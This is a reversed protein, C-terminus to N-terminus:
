PFPNRATRYLWPPRYEDVNVEDRAREILADPNDTALGQDIYYRASSLDSVPLDKPLRVAFDGRITGRSTETGTPLKRLSNKSLQTAQEKSINETIKYFPSDFFKSRKEFISLQMNVNVAFPVEKDIDFTITEDLFDYDLSEIYCPQNDYIGGITIKFLPPVMFGNKVGSPFTLGSLYNIKSWVGDLEGKSFAAINFTLNVSRKVGGYTVFRETRGVYQQENFQPKISEKISSLLARFYVPNEGQVDKFIFKIIDTKPKPTGSINSYNIVNENTSKAATTLNYSDKISPSSGNIVSDTNEIVSQAPGKDYLQQEAFYKSNLRNKANRLQKSRFETAAQIFSPTPKPPSLKEIPERILSPFKKTASQVLSALKRAAINQLNGKVEATLSLRPLGRQNLPQPAFVVPGSNGFTNNVYMFTKYEPRSELYNQPLPVITNAANKLQTAVYTKAISTITPLLGRGGTSAAQLQGSIVFKSTVDNVTTNQLLGSANPVLIKSPINRRAHVFPVVNLLPSLPNYLKTDVFTNGTQLLTQKAIFLVGEPSTLFKSVRKTDRLVSITPISQSDNKIRSRSGFTGDTDPKVTVLQGSSPSFRKYIDQSKENFLDALTAM